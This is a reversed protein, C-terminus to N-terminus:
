KAQPYNNETNKGKARKAGLLYSLVGVIFYSKVDSPTYNFNSLLMSIFFSIIVALLIMGLLSTIKNKKISSITYVKGMEYLFYIYGAIFAKQFTLTIDQWTLTFYDM